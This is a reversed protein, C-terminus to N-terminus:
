TVALTYHRFGRERTWGRREYLAQAKRNTDATELVLYAAKTRRALIEAREMLASAVGSERADPSVFLDNLVWARAMSLSSFTPYLLTFGLARRSAGRGEIALFVTAEGSALRAALYSRVKSRESSLRYFTRYGEFLPVLLDLDRVTAKIIRM